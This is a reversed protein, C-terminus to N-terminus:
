ELYFPSVNIYHEVWTSIFCQSDSGLQWNLSRVDLIFQFPKLDPRSKHYQSKQRDWHSRSFLEQMLLYFKKISILPESQSLFNAPFNLLLEIQRSTTTEALDPSFDNMILLQPAFIKTGHIWLFPRNDHCIEEFHKINNESIRVVLRDEDEEEWVELSGELKHCLKLSHFMLTTLSKLEAVLWTCFKRAVNDDWFIKIDGLSLIVLKM